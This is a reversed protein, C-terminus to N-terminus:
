SSTRYNRKIKEVLGTVLKYILVMKFGLVIGVAAAVTFITTFIPNIYIAAGAAATLISLIVTAPFAASFYQGYTMQTLGAAYAAVDATGGPVFWTFFILKWGIRGAFKDVMVLEELSLLKKLVPRGLFRTLYFNISTGIIWAITTYLTAARFGFLAGAATALVVSPVPVLPITLLQLVIYVLPARYGTAMLYSKIAETDFSFAPILNTGSIVYSVVTPVAVILLVKAIIKIRQRIKARM